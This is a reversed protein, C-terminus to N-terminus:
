TRSPPSSSFGPAYIRAFKAPDVVGRARLWQDANDVLAAGTDGGMVMGQARRAAAAYGMLRANELGSIARHLRAVANEEDGRRHAVTARILSAWANTSALGERELKAAMKEAHRLLPRPRSSSAATALDLRAELWFHLTRVSVLRVLLSRHYGDFSHAHEARIDAGRGEYLALEIDAMLKYWHQVHYAGGPITWAERDLIARAENVDDAVLWRLNLARTISTETYRDSRRRADRLQEDVARVMEPYAGIHRLSILRFLRFTFLEFREGQFPNELYEDEAIRFQENSEAFEGAFFHRFAVFAMLAIRVWPDGTAGDIQQAYAVLEDCRKETKKGQAAQFIAEFVLSRGLRSPEGTDLAVLLGRTQFDAGRINDVFAFFTAIVRYLDIRELAKPAVETPDRTEFALGRLWLRFRRWLLSVLARFPSAAIREGIEELVVEIATLGEGVRGAQLLQLAAERRCILRTAADAGEAAQLFAAASEAGRGADRLAEATRMELERRREDGALENALLNLEAAQDFALSKAALEAAREAHRSAREREGAGILHRVLTRPEREGYGRAELVDVLRRHTDRRADEGLKTVVAERVRDHYCEVRRGEGTASGKLLHAVRLVGLARAATPADLDAVEVVVDRDTPVGAVALAALLQIAEPDLTQVRAWIADDLHIEGSADGQRQVLESIFLPHGDAEALLAATDFDGDRASLSLLRSTLEAAEDDSLRGLDVMRVDVNRLAGSLNERREAQARAATPSLLWSWSPGGETRVEADNTETRVAAVLLLAPADESSLLEELLVFSDADAWQLDDVYLIIPQREALNSLLEALTAFAQSRLDDVTDDDGKNSPARAVAPVRKLVPFIRALRAVDRPVLLAADVDDLRKLYRSLEDIIGDFAKYPVVEREYCRGNLVLAEGQIDRLVRRVLLSKGIGSEGRVFVAVRRGETVDDFARQLLEREEERGVFPTSLGTSTSDASPALSARHGDRGFRALMRADDPRETPDFRLLSVVLDDLDAPIGHAVASPPPPDHRQKAMLVELAQGEFPLRGTLAEYIMVGVSYWDAAPGAPMGAAQEPAMYAVTGVVNADSFAKSSEVMEAEAVLGFDLLVLRGDHGVLVNSPKIDRHVLEAEHLAAVGAALQPIAARLRAEDFRHAGRRRSAVPPADDVPVTEAPHAPGDASVWETFPEGELLEMTFYWQDQECHLEGLRVLNPHGIDALSRFERKFRYLAQPEANKLTKLAVRAGDEDIAEYVVGMGGSGLRRVIRFRKSGFTGLEGVM